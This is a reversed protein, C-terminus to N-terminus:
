GDLEEEPGKARVDEDATRDEDRQKTEVMRSRDPEMTGAMLAQAQGEDDRANQHRHFWMGKALLTRNCEQITCKIPTEPWSPPGGHKGRPSPPKRRRENARRYTELRRAKRHQACLKRNHHARGTKVCGPEVCRVLKIM